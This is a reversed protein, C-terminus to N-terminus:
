PNKADQVIQDLRYGDIDTKLQIFVPFHDSLQFSFKDRTYKKGPFLKEIITADPYFNLTGGATIANDPITPLHLIQDYRADNGLNSGKLAQDGAKLTVL